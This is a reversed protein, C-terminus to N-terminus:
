SAFGVSTGREIEYRDSQGFWGRRLRIAIPEAFAWGKETARARALDIAAHEDLMSTAGSAM